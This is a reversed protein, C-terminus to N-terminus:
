VSLVLVYNLFFKGGGPPDNPSAGSPVLRGGGGNEVNHGFLFWPAKLRFHAYTLPKVTNRAGSQRWKVVQSVVESGMNKRRQVGETKRALRDMCCVDGNFTQTDDGVSGLPPFIKIRAAQSTGYTCCLAAPAFCVTAYRFHPCPSFFPISLSRLRPPVFSVNLVVNMQPVSARTNEKGNTGDDANSTSHALRWTINGTGPDNNPQVFDM